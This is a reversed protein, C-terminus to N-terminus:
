RIHESWTLKNDIWLGLFKSCPVVPLETESLKISIRAKESQKPSFVMCVTKDVNLTLKNANFWDQIVDLDHETCFTLYRINKHSNLLTSDDAFQIGRLYELNLRLDNCFIMFILPGLCSGQATGYEVNYTDSYIDTGQRTKCRVKLGRDSLYSKFWDLCTGRIGYRELKKFIMEHELSDFAKSLDLLICITTKGNQLGKVIEGLVEGIANECSHGARFGYQSSYIQNTSQMFGYVRKYIIKELLKSITLLLSIPRYNNVYDREKNKFLPIVVATKMQSPFVGTTMSTNYIITLPTLLEKSLKKLLINNINDYGCSSKNPLNNILRDLEAQSTPTLYISSPQPNIKDLYHSEPLRSKPIKEAYTKGISSFFKGFENAILQSNYCRVNEIRIHDIINSKNNMKGTINNIVRWLKSTDNRFENCKDHFYKTKALRKLRKLTRNYEKYQQKPLEGDKTAHLMKTYLEKSKKSSTMLGKTMWPEKRLSHYSISFEKEPCHADLLAELKRQLYDTQLNVDLEQELSSWDEKQLEEKVRSLYKLSRTKIKQKNHKNVILNSIVTLCPLHDSLDDLLIMSTYNECHRLSIIVNDILTASQSAIRTPRTITPLQQLELILTIFDNTPRHKEGKLFDLNHDLGIIVDSSIKQLKSVLTRYSRLFMKTDTNPPRYLSCVIIPKKTGKIEVACSEVITADTDTQLARSTLRSDVLIAVGGGKKHQRDNRYIKYGPITFMPSHKTLWTESITIISPSIGGREVCQILANLDSLKSYLGRINLNLTVFDSDTWSYDKTSNKYDCNDTGEIVFPLDM